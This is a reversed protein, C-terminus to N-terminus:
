ELDVEIVRAGDDVVYYVRVKDGPKLASVRAGPKGERDFVQVTPGTKYTVVGAPTTGRLEGKEASVVLVTAYDCKLKDTVAAARPPWFPTKGAPPAALTVALVAAALLM